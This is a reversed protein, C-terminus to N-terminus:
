KAAKKAQKIVRFGIGLLGGCFIVFLVSNGTIINVAQTVITGVETLASSITNAASGEM